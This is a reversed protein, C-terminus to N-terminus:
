AMSDDPTVVRSAPFELSFISGAGFRSRINLEANHRM